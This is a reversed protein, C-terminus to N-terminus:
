IATSLSREGSYDSSLAGNALRHASRYMEKFLGGEGPLPELKLLDKVQQATLATHSNAHYVSNATRSM